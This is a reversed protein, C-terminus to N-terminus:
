SNHLGKARRHRMVEAPALLVDLCSDPRGQPFFSEPSTLIVSQSEYAAAASLSRRKIIKDVVGLTPNKANRGLSYDEPGAVQTAYMIVELAVINVNLKTNVLSFLETLTAVISEPSERDSISKMNSEIIRSVKHSHDSFSFETNPLNFVPLKFDWGKLDFVVNNNNDTDWPHKKLYSLFPKTLVANRNGQNLYFVQSVSDNKHTYTIEVCEISSVRLPSINSVDDVNLIDILGQVDDRNVTIRIDKAAMEKRVIYSDKSKNLTFFKASQENLVITSGVSSNDIHKVSLVSQSTQKTMTAASLHGVNDFRSINAYLGGFCTSCINHKNPHKCFVVSRMKITGGYLHKEDGRIELLKGTSECLYYKGVMYTLDGAYICKGKDDFTPQTLRWQLYKDTGCDGYVVKEVVTALLQLRRAFYEADQLPADSFYLSKAALRSEAIFSYPTTLGKTFNSLLPIPLISGSVETLFGRIGCCQLIQSISVTQCKVAVAINNDALGPDKKIISTIDGYAEQISTNTPLTNNVIKVVEPHESIGIFDLIDITAIYEEAEEVIDNNINNNIRYILAWLPERDIPFIINYAAITDKYITTLAENGTDANLPEGRLYHTISHTHLLPLKPYQRHFEWLYHSYIVEKDSMNVIVNDDFIVNFEKPLTNYIEQITFRALDRAM